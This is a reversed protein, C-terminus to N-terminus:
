RGGEIFYRRVQDIDARFKAIEAKSEELIESYNDDNGSNQLSLKQLIDLSALARYYEHVHAELSRGLYFRNLRIKALFKKRADEVNKAALAVEKREYIIKESVETSEFLGIEFYANDVAFYLDDFKEEFLAAEQWVEAIKQVRIQNVAINFAEDAKNKELQVTSFYVVVGVLLGFVLRDLILKKIEDKLTM